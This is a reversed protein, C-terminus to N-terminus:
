ARIPCLHADCPKRVVATLAINNNNNFHSSRKIAHSAIYDITHRNDWLRLRFVYKRLM